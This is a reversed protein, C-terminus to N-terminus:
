IALSYLTADVVYSASSAKVSVTQNYPDGASAGAAYYNVTVGSNSSGAMSIGSPATSDSYPANIYYAHHGRYTYPSSASYERTFLIYGHNSALNFLYPTTNNISTASEVVQMFVSNDYTPYYNANLIKFYNNQTYNNRTGYRPHYELEVYEGNLDYNTTAHAYDLTLDSAGAVYLSSNIKGMKVKYVTETSREKVFLAQTNTRWAKSTGVNKLVMKFPKNNTIAGDPLVIPENATQYTGALDDGKVEIYYNPMGMVDQVTLHDSAKRLSPKFLINNFTKNAALQIKCQTNTATGTNTFYVGSGTDAEENPDRTISMYYTSNSGGTPCGKFFYEVDNALASNLLNFSQASGGTYGDINISEVFNNGDVNLTATVGDKVGVNGNWTFATNLAKIDSAKFYLYDKSVWGVTGKVNENGGSIEPKDSLDNYSGTFAVTKLDAFWKKIKGFMVSLKEGTNINARSGAQTFAVTSDSANNVRDTLEKNTMAYPQYTSDPDSALRLLFNNYNVEGVVSTDLSCWLRLRLETNNGSNFTVSYHGNATINTGSSIYTDTDKLLIGVRAGGTTITIDTDIRYDTNPTLKLLWEANKWTGASDSKVKIIKGGDSITVFNSRTYIESSDFRNKAGLVRQESRDFKSDKLPIYPSEYTNDDENSNCIMVQAEDITKTSGTTQYDCYFVAYENNGSNFSYPYSNIYTLTCSGGVAPADLSLMLAHRNGNNNTVIYDTNKKIKACFSTVLLSTNKNYIDAGASGNQPLFGVNEADFLNKGEVVEADRLVELVSDHYPEYTSDTIDADMLMPKLTINSVTQSKRIRIYPIFYVAGNPITLVIESNGDTIIQHSIFTESSDYYWIGLTFKTNDVTIGANIKKGALNYDAIAPRKGSANKGLLTFDSGDGTGDQTGNATITNDTNITYTVGNMTYVNNSWSGITNGTKLSNLDYDFDNKSVWGVTDEILTSADGAGQIGALVDAYTLRNTGNSLAEANDVLGNNNQDYTAKTMDGSGTGDEGDRLTGVVASTGDSYTATIPHEKGTGSMVLSSVSRGTDGTAGTDGKLNSFAFNFVPEDQTGTRTVAVAPTGVESNVTATAELDPSIGDNIVASTTGYQDTITVTAYDDGPNRAVSATPIKDEFNELLDEVTGQIIYAQDSWYKANNHYAPDTDPVDTGDKKGVAWSESTEASTNANTAYTQSNSAATRAQTAYEQALAVAEEITEATGLRIVNGPSLTMYVYGNDLCVAFEGAVMRTPDFDAFNGRRMQIAM